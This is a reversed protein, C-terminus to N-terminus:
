PTCDGNPQRPTGYYGSLYQDSDLASCWNAGADNSVTDMIDESLELSHNSAVSPFTASSWTVSDITTGTSTVLRATDVTSSWSMSLRSDYQGNELNNWGGANSVFLLYGGIAVTLTTDYVVQQPAESSTGGLHLNDLRSWTCNSANYVEVYDRTSSVNAQIETIVMAGAWMTEALGTTGVDTVGDCDNDLNDCTETAGPHIAAYSDDCDTDDAVYGVPQACADVTDYTDGYGDNDADLYWTSLAGGGEDVVGDCDDDLGNCVEQALPNVAPNSDNCDTNNSTYSSPQFCARSTTAANGYGDNDSDYYWTVADTSEPDDVSGDCDSDVADCTETAGPHTAALSDNCDGATAVYGAPATCGVRGTTGGYGDSDSDLYWTAANVASSEDVVGDCDNDVSDCMESAAPNISPNSDNCDTASVVYGSPQNCAVSTTASSGYSDSDADRYWTTADVANAEDTSNNCNNDIGDCFEPAAPNITPNTDLCDIPDNPNESCVPFGDHDADVQLVSAQGDCNYDNKSCRETAGPHYMVDSDYCDGGTAILGPPQTCVFIVNLGDGYGDGDADPYWATADTANDDVVGNCDDDLGNCYELSGPYATARTDDCDTNDTVYGSPQTCAVITFNGGYGDGDADMYFVTSAAGDDVIGDCDDDISNCIEIATPNTNFSGDDCDTANAVYGFPQACGISQINPNGYGDGDSDAYWSLGLGEDVAGNCNNDEGDCVENGIPNIAFNSDDCDEANSVYDTPRSCAQVAGLPSGYSDGDADPYWVSPNIGGEDVAGDCDDDQDNCYELAGPYISRNTDDCDSADTIYGEPQECAGVTNNPDGYSDNDLDAYYTTTVGDDILEDCDDDIENCTETAGPYIASESDDCDTADAVYGSPQYCAIDVSDVDGYGDSDNDLYWNTADVSSDEDVLGQPDCNDNVGNCYEIAGPYIAPNVDDCDQQNFPDPDRNNESLCAPDSFGDGDTDCDEGTEKGQFPCGTVCVAVFLLLFYLYRIM